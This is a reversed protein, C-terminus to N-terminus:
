FPISGGKYKLVYDLRRQMTNYLAHTISPNDKKRLTDWAEQIKEWLQDEKKRGKLHEVKGVLEEKLLHWVNEILNLDPSKPPWGEVVQIGNDEIFTTTYKSRHISANDHQFILEPREEIYPKVVREIINKCYKQSDMRGDVKVIPGLGQKSIMGWVSIFQRNGRTNQDMCKPEWRKNRPRRVWQIANDAICFISEGSFAVIDWNFPSRPQVTTNLTVVANNFQGAKSHQHNPHKQNVFQMREQKHSNTLSPKSPARFRHRGAAALRRKVTTISAKMGLRMKLERPKLFPEETSLEILSDDMDPLTATKKRTYRRRITPDKRGSENYRDITTSVCHRSVQVERAIRSYNHGQKFLCVIAWQTDQPILKPM